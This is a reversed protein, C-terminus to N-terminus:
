RWPPPASPSHSAGSSRLELVPLHSTRVYHAHSSRLDELATEGEGTKVRCVPGYGWGARDEAEKDAGATGLGGVGFGEPKEM